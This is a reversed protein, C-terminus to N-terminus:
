YIVIIENKGSKFFNYKEQGIADRVSQGQMYLFLNISQNFILNFKILREKIWHFVPDWEKSQFNKLEEPEEM